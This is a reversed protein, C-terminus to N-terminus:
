LTVVYIKKLNNLWRGSNKDRPFLAMLEKKTFNKKEQDQLFVDPLYYRLRVMKSSELDLSHLDIMASTGAVNKVLFSDKMGGKFERVLLLAPLKASATDIEALSVGIRKGNESECIVFVRSREDSSINKVSNQVLDFFSVSYFRGLLTKQNLFVEVSRMRDDNKLKESSIEISDLIKVNQFQSFVSGCYFFLAFLTFILRM